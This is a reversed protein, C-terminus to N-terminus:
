CSSQELQANRGSSDNAAEEPYLVTYFFLQGNDPWSEGQTGFGSMLWRRTLARRRDMYPAADPIAAKVGEMAACGAEM